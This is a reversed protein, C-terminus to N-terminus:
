LLREIEPYDAQKQPTMTLILKPYKAAVQRVMESLSNGKDLLDAALRPGSQVDNIDSASINDGSFINGKLSHYGGLLIFAQEIAKIRAPPTIGAESAYPKTPNNLQNRAQQGYCISQVSFISIFFIIVGLTKSM